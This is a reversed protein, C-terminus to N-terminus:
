RYCLYVYLKEFFYKKEELLEFKFKKSIISDIKKKNTLSSFLILIRGNKKLYKDVELFFREIVEYGKSGGVLDKDKIEDEPLYPPNFVILDFKGKVNEFLNSYYVNLKKNKCFEVADKDIDVGIVDKTKELAVEMQVGSGVGVDLVRGRAYKKVFKALLFSDEAAEYIM